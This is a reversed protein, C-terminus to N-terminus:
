RYQGLHVRLMNGFTLFRVFATEGNATFNDMNLASAGHLAVCSSQYGSNSQVFTIGLNSYDLLMPVSFSLGNSLGSGTISLYSSITGRRFSDFVVISTATFLTVAITSSQMTVAKCDHVASFLAPGTAAAADATNM